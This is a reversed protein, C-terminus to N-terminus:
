EPLSFLCVVRPPCHRPDVAVMMHTLARAESGNNPVWVIPPLYLLVLSTDCFTPHMACCLLVEVARGCGGEGGGGGGRERVCLCVGVRASM